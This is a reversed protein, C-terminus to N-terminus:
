RQNMYQSAINPLGLIAERITNVDNANPFEATIYFQNETNSDGAINSGYGKNAILNLAMQSISGAISSEISDNLKTMDRIAAVADLMNKTDQENLVLEKQDLLAFRGDSGWEGTYGGTAFRTAYQGNIAIMKGNKNKDIYVGPNNVGTHWAIDSKNVNNSSSSPSGSAGWVRNEEGNYSPTGSVASRSGSGAIPTRDFDSDDDFSTATNILSLYSQMVGQAELIKGIVMDWVDAVSAINQRLVDIYQSSTIVMAATRDALEYTKASTKDIAEGIKNFDVGAIEQLKNLEAEYNQIHRQMDDIAANMMYRVSFGNDKAWDTIIQAAATKSNMNMEGFVEKAALSIEPYVGDVIASRLDEYCELHHETVMDVLMMQLDSLKTYAEADQACVQQFVMASAATAEQRYLESNEVAADILPLYYDYIEQIKVMKEEETLTMDSGIESIKDVMEQYTDMALEMAHNYADDALKYLNNYEDLLAQQKSAVDSEDAVYQYTWNGSADRTLKMSTKSNQADQLAMEKLAIQYRAEALDIDHQTLYDKERLMNIEEDRLKQLKQQNTVSSTNAISQNIKNALTQIQYAGEVDDLYEKAADQIRAWDSKMDELAMGWVGKNVADIVENIASLYKDQLVQVGELILKNLDEQSQTMSEYAKKMDETWTTIDNLDVQHKDKNMQYSKDFESQWYDVQAKMSNIQGLVNEKQAEYFRNM